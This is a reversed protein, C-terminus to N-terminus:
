INSQTVKWQKEEWIELMVPVLGLLFYAGWVSLSYISIKSGMLIPFYSYYMSGRFIGTGIYVVLSMMYSLVAWDRKTFIFISFATRGKLGYGRSQMSDATQVSEELVLTILISLISMGQGIRQLINGKSLSHGIGSQAKSIAKLQRKFKPVFGLIM